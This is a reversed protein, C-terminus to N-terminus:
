FDAIISATAVPKYSASFAGAGAVYWFYSSSIQSVALRSTCPISGVKFKYRAGASMLLPLSIHKSNDVSTMVTGLKTAVLYVSAKPAFPLVYDLNLQVNTRPQNVPLRGIIEGAAQTNKIVPDMYFGGLVMTLGQAPMASLSVEVGRHVEDGLLRYVNNSDATVYPKTIDFYGVILSTNESPAWRLGADYQRSKIASLPQGRNVASDPANGNDELGRSYSGYAVVKPAVILSLTLNQLWPSTHLQTAALGPQADHRSYDAHQLGIGLDGVRDWHLNYALGVTQQTVHLTSQPGFNFSPKVASVTDNINVIGADYFDSGGYRSTVNRWRLSGLLLHKIKSTGFGRSMRLEGSTSASRLPPDAVIVHNGTGDPAVDLYLNAYSNTSDRLSHFLGARLTWDGLKAIGLVGSNDAFSNNAAWSPGAFFKRKVRPPEDLGVGPLYIASSLDDMKYSRGWFATVEVNRTPRWRPVLGFAKRRDASGNGFHNRSISVGVASSLISDILSLQSDTEYRVTSNSDVTGIASFLNKGDSRRLSYDVIGTPAPFIYGQAATGIHVSYASQVRVTLDAQQDFYLGEIRLNGAVSPSFGRIAYADYLGIAEGSIATGFADEASTIVNEDARQAQGVNPLAVLWVLCCVKFIFKLIARYEM